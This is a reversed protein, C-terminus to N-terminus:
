YGRELRQKLKLEEEKISKPNKWEYDYLKYSQTPYVKSQIAQPTFQKYKKLQAPTLDMYFGNYVVRLTKKKSIHEKVVYDRISVWVKDERVILTKGQPIEYIM